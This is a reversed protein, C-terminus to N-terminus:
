AIIDGFAIGAGLVGTLQVAADADGDLNFDIFVLANATGNWGTGTDASDQIVAFRVTGNLATNAAALADAYDSAANTNMDVEVYNTATGATGLKLVDTGATKFAAVIDITTGTTGAHGPAIVVTDNGGGLTITDQGNGGTIVDNGGSTTITDAGATGVVTDNGANGTINLGGIGNAITNDLVLTSFDYSGAVDVDVDLLTAVNGNGQITYSKGGILAADVKAAGASDRLIEVGTVTISGDTLDLNNLDIIDTGDGGEIQWFTLLM